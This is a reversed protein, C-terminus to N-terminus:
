QWKSDDIDSNLASILNFSVRIGHQGLTSLSLQTGEVDSISFARLVPYNNSARDARMRILIDDAISEMQEWVEHIRDFNKADPVRDILMFAGHRIKRVSDALNDGYNFNYSELILAPYKVGKALGDIVEDLEFRYFHKELPTHRISVHETALMEFYSVLDAFTAAM